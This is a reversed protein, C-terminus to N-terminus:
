PPDLEALRARLREMHGTAGIEQQIALAAGLLERAQVVDGPEGRRLHAEAWDKLTRGHDPRLGKAQFNTAAVSFANFAEQWHGESALLRAAAWDYSMQTWVRPRVQLDEAARALQARAEQHRGRAALAFAYTHRMFDRAPAPSRDSTAVAEGLISIAEDYEGTEILAQCLAFLFVTLDSKTEAHAARQLSARTNSIVSDLDGRAFDLSQLASFFQKGPMGPDAIQQLVDGARLLLAQGQALDGLTSFSDIAHDYALLENNADGIRRANEAARMFYALGRRFDAFNVEAYVGLNLCARQAERFLGEREAIQLAQETTEIAEAISTDPHIGYTILADAEVKRDGVRHAIELARQCLSLAEKTSGHFIHARATEHLLGALEGSEPAGSTQEIGRLCVKLAIAWDDDLWRTRAMNSHCAAVRDLRGTSLYLDAAPEWLGIADESRGLRSAAEAMGSLLDAREDDTPDLELAAAFYDHAEQNAYSTSARLGAKIYYGRALPGDGAKEYHRALDEYAEPRVAEIAQAVQRHLKRRSLTRVSGVLTAPILAHAFSFTAGGEGSVESILQAGESLELAAIVQDEELDSARLLTDFDFERGLIAALTLTDRDEESLKSVRAQVVERVSQPLELEDMSPRHWSGDQYYLKGSEVLDKCIEEIFFPNGETERYIGTLFEPTIQEEFIAVLLNETQERTLRGLKLRRALRERNLDLLVERFPRAEDIEIERYTALLLVPKNRIRRSLHRMLSLSGSDAWHADDLVLLLPRQESLSGCFTVVNEFLRQQQAEPGLPPNPPIDPYYPKLDPALELLDAMVFQPIGHGNKRLASRLIQAFPAYPAGGEEYCAGVLTRGGSVEVQTSLERMLRTKGVGPEGSVLLTQGDGGTAKSWVSRAESPEQERGVFRGRVIRDLVMVEREEKAHPDLLDSRDLMQRTAAASAPRAGPDKSMLQVILTDLLPPIEARKARPPPVSAHLHQSIVAVPDGAAFPLSGTTLEYLMVGLSYLDARGDFEQGLAIEPALYFVTGAVTGESTLRSAMSRAIGFDMLKATGDEAILVNEPKLDRHVIGHQHAHELAACVQQAIEVTAPFDSPPRDHLSAGEIMEMVIFPTEGTEGADYVAVINPHSLKAIAKAEHLLRERGETGLGLESLMKVAVERELTPDYARYVTGMGGRGLEQGLQYRDNLVTTQSTEAM